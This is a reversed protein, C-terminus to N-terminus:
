ESDNNNQYKKLVSPHVNAKLEDVTKKKRSALSRKKRLRPSANDSILMYAVVSTALARVTYLVFLFAFQFNPYIVNAPLDEFAVDRWVIDRPGINIANNRGFADANKYALYADAIVLFVVGIAILYKAYLMKDIRNVLRGAFAMIAIYHALTYGAMLLFIEMYHAVETVGLAPILRLGIIQPALLLVFLLTIQGFDLMM